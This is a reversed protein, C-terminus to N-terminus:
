EQDLEIAVGDDRIARQALTRAVRTDLNLLSALESVRIGPRAKALDTVTSRLSAASEPDVFRVTRGTGRGLQLLSEYTDFYHPWAGKELLGRVEADDLRRLCFVDNQREEQAVLWWERCHACEGCWLWWLPEGRSRKEEISAMVESSDSGMDVVATDALTVCRCRLSSARAAHQRLTNKVGAIAETSRYDAALVHLADQKGFMGELDDSHEYAWREFVAADLDGRVFRWITILRPDLTPDTPV